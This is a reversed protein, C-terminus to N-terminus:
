ATHGHRGRKRRAWAAPRRWVWSHRGGSAGGGEGQAAQDYLARTKTGRSAAGSQQALAEKKGGHPFRSYILFLPHQFLACVMHAAVCYSGQKQTGTFCGGALNGIKFRQGGVGGQALTERPM